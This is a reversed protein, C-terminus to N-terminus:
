VRQKIKDVGNDVARKIERYYIRKVMTPSIQFMAALNKFTMKSKLSVIKKNRTTKPLSGKAM